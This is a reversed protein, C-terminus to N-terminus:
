RGRQDTALPITFNGAVPLDITRAMELVYDIDWDRGLDKVLTVTFDYPLKMPLELKTSGSAAIWGPDPMAGWAIM